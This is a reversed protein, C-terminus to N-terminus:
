VKESIRHMAREIEDIGHLISDKAEGCYDALDTADALVELMEDRSESIDLAIENVRDVADQLLVVAEKKPIRKRKAKHRALM